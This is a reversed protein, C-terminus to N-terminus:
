FSLRKDFTPIQSDVILVNKKTRMLFLQKESLPYNRKIYIYDKVKRKLGWPM